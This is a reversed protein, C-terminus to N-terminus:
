INPFSPFCAPSRIPNPILLSTSVAFPLRTHNMGLSLPLPLSLAPPTCIRFGSRHETSHAMPDLGGHRWQWLPTPNEARQMPLGSM